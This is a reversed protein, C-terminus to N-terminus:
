QKKTACNVRPDASASSLQFVQGQKMKIAIINIRFNFFFVQM